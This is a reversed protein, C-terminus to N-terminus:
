NAQRLVQAANINTIKLFHYVMTALVVILMTLFAVLFLLPSLDVRYAYQNLWSNGCINVLPIGIVSSLVLILFTPKFLMLVIALRDSGLIKRISVEKTKQQALFLTTGFIGISALGIAILAICAFIHKQHQDDKYFSAFRQDLFSYDFPVDPMIEGWTKEIVAISAGVANTPIRVLFYGCLDPNYELVLPQVEQHLSAFNFDKVIGAVYKKARIPSFISPLEVERNLVNNGLANAASLNIIIYKTSDSGIDPNFFRGEALELGLTQLYDSDVFSQYVGIRREEDSSNEPVTIGYSFFSEGPPTSCRAVNAISRDTLLKNKFSTRKEPPTATANITVVQHADFGPDKHVIYDLQQYTLISFTLLCFSSLLQFFVLANRLAFSSPKGKWTGRFAEVAKSRTIHIAPYVGSIIVVFVCICLIILATERRFFLVDRNVMVNFWPLSLMALFSGLSLSFMTLICTEALHTAILSARSIGLIKKLGVGPSRNIFEATSINIYNICAIFLILLGIFFSVAVIKLSGNQQIEYLLDSELHISELSQLIPKLRESRGKGRFEEIFAPFEAILNESSRQDQLLLYTYFAAFGKTDVNLSAPIQQSIVPHNKIVQFSSFSAIFEFDIHSKSPEEELIGTVTFILEGNIILTKGIPNAERFYKKACSRTLVVEMPDDLITEPNTGGQLPFDFFTFFNQDAFGFKSENFSEDSRFNRVSVRPFILRCFSQVSAYREQLAPGTTASTFAFRQIGDPSSVVHVYRYIRDYDPHQKDYDIEHLCFLCTLLFIGSGITLGTVKVFTLTKTRLILRLASRYLLAIM